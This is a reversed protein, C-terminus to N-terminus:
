NLAAEFENYKNSKIWFSKKNMVKRLLDIFTTKNYPKTTADKTLLKSEQKGTVINKAVLYDRNKLNKIGMLVISDPYIESFKDLTEFTAKSNSVFCSKVVNQIKEDGMIIKAQFNPAYSVKNIEM